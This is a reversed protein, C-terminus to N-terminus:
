SLKLYAKSTTEMLTLQRRRCQRRGDRARLLKEKLKKTHHQSRTVKSQIGGAAMKHRRTLSDLVMKERKLESMDDQIHRVYAEDATVWDKVANFVRPFVDLSLGMYHVVRPYNQLFLEMTM